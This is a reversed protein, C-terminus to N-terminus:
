KKKKGKIIYGMHRNNRKELLLLIFLIIALPVIPLCLDELLFAFITGGISLILFWFFLSLSERQKLTMEKKLKM